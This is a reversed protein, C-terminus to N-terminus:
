FPRPAVRGGSEELYPLYWSYAQLHKPDPHRAEAAWGHLADVERLAHRIFGEAALAPLFHAFRRTEARYIGSLVRCKVRYQAPTLKVWKSPLCNYAPSWVPVRRAGKGGGDGFARHVAACVDQHHPHGYEGLPGHTYVEGPRDKSDLIARLREGLRALDLRKEYIDPFDWQEAKRVGLAKCAAQFQAARTTGHGDANGDTVCIVRWHRSRTALLLGGFFITEDDPHAVVLLSTKTPM